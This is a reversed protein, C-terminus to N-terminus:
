FADSAQMLVLFGHVFYSRRDIKKRRLQNQLYEPISVLINKIYRDSFKTRFRSELEQKFTVLGLGHGPFTKDLWLSRIKEASLSEMTFEGSESGRSLNPIPLPSFPFNPFNREM